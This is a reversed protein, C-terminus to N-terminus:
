EELPTRGLTIHRFTIMFGGFILRGLGGLPQRAMSFFTNIYYKTEPIPDTAMRLNVILYVVERVWHSCCIDLAAENLRPSIM